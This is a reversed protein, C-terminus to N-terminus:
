LDESGFFVSIAQGTLTATRTSWELQINEVNVAVIRDGQVPGQAGVRATKWTTQLFNFHRGRGASHDAGDFL